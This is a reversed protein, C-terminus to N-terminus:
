TFKLLENKECIIMKMQDFSEYVSFLDRLYGVTM